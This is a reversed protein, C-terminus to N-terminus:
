RIIFTRGNIIYLGKGLANLEERTAGKLIAVGEASYVDFSTVDDAFADSVGGTERISWVFNIATNIVQTGDKKVANISNEPITWTYDGIEKVEEDLEISLKLPDNTTKLYQMQKKEVADNGFYTMTIGGLYPSASTYTDADLNIYLNYLSEVQSGNEPTSTCVLNEHNKDLYNINLTIEKNFVGDACAAAAPFTVTYTGYQKPYNMFIMFRQNGDSWSTPLYQVSKDPYVVKSQIVKTPVVTKDFKVYFSELNYTTINSIDVPGKQDSVTYALEGLEGGTVNYTLDFGATPLPAGDGGIFNISKKPINVKYTGAAYEIQDTRLYIYMANPSLTATCNKVTGNPLTMQFEAGDAISFVYNEPAEFEIGALATVPGQAPTINPKMTTGSSITYTYTLTKNTYYETSSNSNILFSGEPYTVTYVGEENIDTGAEMVLRYGIRGNSASCTEIAYEKTEGGEKAVTGKAGFKVGEQLYETNGDADLSSVFVKLRNISQYQGPAPDPYCELDIPTFIRTDKVTFTVTFQENGTGDITFSNAPISATYDGPTELSKPYDAFVLKIVPLSVVKEADADWKTAQSLNYTRTFGNPGTMTVPKNDGVDIQTGDAFTGWVTTLSEVTMNTISASTAYSTGKSWKIDYPCEAQAMSIAALGLAITTFIKRM